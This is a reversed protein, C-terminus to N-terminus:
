LRGVLKELLDRSEFFLKRTLGFRIRLFEDISKQLEWYPKYINELEELRMEHKRRDNHVVEVTVGLRDAGKSPDYGIRVDVEPKKKALEKKLWHYETQLELAKGYLNANLLLLEVLKDEQTNEIVGRIFLNLLRRLQGTEERIMSHLMMDAIVKAAQQQAGADEAVITKGQFGYDPLPNVEVATHRFAVPRTADLMIEGSPAAVFTAFIEGKVHVDRIEGEVVLDFKGGTNEVQATLSALQTDLRDKEKQLSAQKNELGTRYRSNKKVKPNFHPNTLTYEIDDIKKQVEGRRSELRRVASNLKAFYPNEIVHPVSFARKVESDALPKTVRGSMMYANASGEKEVVFRPFLSTKGKLYEIIIAGLGQDDAFFNLPKLSYTYRQVYGALFKELIVEVRWHPPAVRALGLAAFLRSGLRQHKLFDATWNYLVQKIQEHAKEREQTPQFLSALYALQLKESIIANSVLSGLKTTGGISPLSGLELGIEDRQLEATPRYDDKDADVFFKPAPLPGASIFNRGQEKVVGYFEESFTEGIGGSNLITAEIRYRDLPAVPVVGSKNFSVCRHGHWNDLVTDHWLSLKRIAGPSSPSLVLGARANRTVVNRLLNVRGGQVRIGGAMNGTIINGTLTAVTTKGAIILGPGTGGSIRCDSLDAQAESLAVVSVDEGMTLSWLGIGVISLSSRSVYLATEKALVITRDRGAGRLVLKKGSVVVSERYIGPGLSVVAGEPAAAVAQAVSRFAQDLGEVSVLGEGEENNREQMGYRKEFSAIVQESTYGARVELRQSNRGPGCGWLLIPLCGLIM